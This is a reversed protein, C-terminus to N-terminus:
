KVSFKKVVDGNLNVIDVRDAGQPGLRDKYRKKVKQIAKPLSVAEDVLLTINDFTDWHYIGFELKHEIPM